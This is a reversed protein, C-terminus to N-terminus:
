PQVLIINEAQLGERVFLEPTTEESIGELMLSAKAQNASYIKARAKAIKDSEKAKDSVLKSIAERKRIVNSRYTDILAM